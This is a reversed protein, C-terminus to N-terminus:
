KIFAKGLKARMVNRMAVVLNKGIDNQVQNVTQNFAPQLFPHPQATTPHANAFRAYWGGPPRNKSGFEVLHGHYGKHGGGIRPGVRVEGIEQAKRISMRVRGISRALNGTKSNVNRKAVDEMPKAAAFIANGVVKHNIERPLAQFLRNLEDVGSVVVM